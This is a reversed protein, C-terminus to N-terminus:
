DHILGSNQWCRFVDSSDVVEGFFLAINKLTSQHLEESSSSTCDKLFVIYYDKMFGDRATTEVCVNTVVGTMILTRIGRSRLILDLNTDAFASPRYKNVVIEGPLPNIGQYFDAGWSDPECVNYKIYAGKKTREAQELYVDSLYWNSRTNYIAQIYIITLGVQRAKHIFNILRPVMTQIMRLDHGEKDLMGGKACFDNQVDVVILATHLPDVKKELTRLARSLTAIINPAKEHNTDASM